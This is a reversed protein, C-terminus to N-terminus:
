AMVEDSDQIMANCTFRKLATHKPQSALTHESETGTYYLLFADGLYDYCEFSGHLSNLEKWGIDDLLLSIRTSTVTSLASVRVM